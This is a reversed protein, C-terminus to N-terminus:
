RNEFMFIVFDFFFVFFLKRFLDYGFGLVDIIKLVKFWWNSNMKVVIFFWDKIFCFVM